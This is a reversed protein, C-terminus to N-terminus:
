NRLHGRKDRGFHAGSQAFVAAFERARTLGNEVNDGGGVMVERGGFNVFERAFFIRVETQHRHIAREVQEGFEAVHLADVKGVATVTVRRARLFVRMMQNTRDAAFRLLKFVAVEFRQNSSQLALRAIFDIQM